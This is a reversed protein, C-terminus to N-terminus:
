CPFLARPEESPLRSEGLALRMKLRLPGVILGKHRSHGMVYWLCIGHLGPHDNDAGLYFLGGVSARSSYGQVQSANDSGFLRRTM